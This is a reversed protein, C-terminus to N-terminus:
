IWSGFWMRARWGEYGVQEATWIPYFWWAAAITLILMTIAAIRGIKLNRACLEQFAMAIAIVVFPVYIVTYFTFIPRDPFLFWPLWGAAIALLVAIARWDRKTAVRWILAIIALVGVWWIIPNGLALVEATCTRDPCDNFYYFSTPRLQIPWGLPSSAYSHEAELTSHFRWQQAHYHWLSRLAGFSEGGAWDRGWGRDTLFWGSWSVLYTAAAILAMALVSFPRLLTERWPHEVGRQRRAIADWALTLAFFTLAYWAASWKTALALGLALAALVRLLSPRFSVPQSLPQARLREHDIVLLGFAVLVWFGVILDLLATRSMVIHIGDLALLVGAFTGWINSQTLRRVIRALLIVSLIGLIVVTFRWGFTTAGFLWEGISILWKGAPPHAVFQPEGTFLELAQWNRDDTPLLEKINEVNEQETGFQALGLADVAYYIEDFVLSNPRSLNPLRTITALLGALLPGIWGVWGGAPAKAAATRTAVV